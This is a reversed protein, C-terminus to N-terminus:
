LTQRMENRMDREVDLNCELNELERSVKSFDKQLKQILEKRDATANSIGKEPSGLVLRNGESDYPYRLEVSSSDYDNLRLIYQKLMPSIRNPGILCTLLDLVSQLSHNDCIKAYNGGNALYIGKLQLELYHRVTYLTSFLGYEHDIVILRNTRPDEHTTELPVSYPDIDQSIQDLLIKASNEYSRAYQLFKNADIVGSKNEVKM